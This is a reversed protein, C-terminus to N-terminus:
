AENIKFHQKIWDRQAVEIAMTDSGMSQAVAGACSLLNYVFEAQNQQPGFAQVELENKSIAVGCFTHGEKAIEACATEMKEKTTTSLM